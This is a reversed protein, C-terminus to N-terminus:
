NKRVDEYVTAPLAASRRTPYVNLKFSPHKKLMAVQGPSLKDGYQAANQATITYLPKDGAYPDAYGKKPDFGAPAKTLGGDWGPISGDRNASKEAGVPTLDKGLRDVEQSTAGALAAPATAAIALTVALALTHKIMM